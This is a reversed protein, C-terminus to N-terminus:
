KATGLSHLFCDDFSITGGGGLSDRILFYVFANGGSNFTPVNVQQWAGTATINITALPSNETWKHDLVLVQFQGSGKAWLGSAYNTHRAVDIKQFANMYSPKAPMTVTLGASGTHANEAGKTAAFPKPITWGAGSNEFGPNALLNPGNAAPRASVVSSNGSTGIGNVVRVSSENVGYVHVYDVDMSSVGGQGAGLILVQWSHDIRSFRYSGMSEKTEPFVGQYQQNGSWCTGIMPVRDFYITRYGIWGNAATAPVLLCGYTHYQGYDTGVPPYQTCVDGIAGHDLWDGLGSIHQGNVGGWQPNMEVIDNEIMEVHGPHGPMERDKKNETCMSLDQTWFAPNGPTTGTKEFNRIRFRAEFYLPATDQFVTGVFGERNNAPAATHLTEAFHNPSDAVTLVGDGVSFMSPTTPPIHYFQHLYWHYGNGQTNKIDITSSDDFEDSFLLKFGRATPHNPDFTILQCDTLGTYLDDLYVVTGSGGVEKINVQLQYIKGTKYTVSAQQWSSTATFDVHALKASDDGNCIELQLTGHGKYWVSSTYSTNPWVDLPSRPRCSGWPQVKAQLAWSGTHANAADKVIAFPAEDAKWYGHNGGEFSGNVVLNPGLAQASQATLWPATTLLILFTIQAAACAPSFRNETGNNM